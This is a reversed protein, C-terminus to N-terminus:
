TAVVVQENVDVCWLACEVKGATFLSFDTPETITLRVTAEADIGVAPAAGPTANIKDLVTIDKGGVFADPDASVGLEATASVGGAFAIITKIKGALPLFGAPLKTTFDYTGAVGGGDTMDTISVKGLYLKKLNRFNM